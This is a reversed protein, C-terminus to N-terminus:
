LEHVFTEHTKQCIQRYHGGQPHERGVQDIQKGQCNSSVETGRKSDLFSRHSDATLVGISTCNSIMSCDMAYKLQDENICYVLGASRTPELSVSYEQALQSARAKLEWHYAVYRHLFARISEPELQALFPYEVFMSMRKVTRGNTVDFTAKDGM